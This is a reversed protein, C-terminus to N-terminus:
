GIHPIYDVWSVTEFAAAPLSRLSLFVEVLMFTRGALYLVGVPALFVAQWFPLFEMERRRKEITSVRSVHFPNRPFVMLYWRQWRAVRHGDQYIESLYYAITLAVVTSSSLRWLFREVPTPFAYNWAAVHLGSYSAHVLMQLISEVSGISWLPFRDNLLRQLPRARPGLRFHLHPQIDTLWSPSQNDIFDLPTQSYPKAARSGAEMLLERTSKEIKLIAPIRHSVAPKHWWQYGTFLTCLVCTFTILELTTSTLSNARRALYQMLFWAVQILALVKMVFPQKEFDQSLDTTIPYPVYGRTVLYHLQKANIPFPKSDRPQLVFGGMNAYFGHRMTWEPYGNRKWMDVSRRAEQKQGTALIMPIEPAAFCVLSWRFQRANVQWAKESFSPYNIHVSITACLIITSFCGWLIDITGRGVDEGVFNKRDTTGTGSSSQSTPLVSSATSANGAPSPSSVPLHGTELTSIVSNTIVITSFKTRISTITILTTSSLNPNLQAVM